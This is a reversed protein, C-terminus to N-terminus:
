RRPGAQQQRLMQKVSWAEAVAVVAAEDALGKWFADCARECAGYVSAYLIAAAGAQVALGAANALAAAGM